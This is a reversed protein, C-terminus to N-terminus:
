PCNEDVVWFPNGELDQFGGFWFGGKKDYSPGFTVAGEREKLYDFFQPLDPVEIQLVVSNHQRDGLLVGMENADAVGIRFGDASELNCYHYDDEVLHTLSFGLVSKYWKILKYFDAAFIVPERPKIKIMTIEKAAM